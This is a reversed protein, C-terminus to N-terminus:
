YLLALWGLRRVGEATTDPPLAGPTDVPRRSGWTRGQIGRHPHASLDNFRILEGDATVSRAPADTNTRGNADRSTM